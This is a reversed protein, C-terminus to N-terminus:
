NNFVRNLTVGPSAVSMVLRIFKNFEAEPSNAVYIVDHDQIPFNQTVFFAAPNRLNVQYVVPVMGKLSLNARASSYDQMIDTSEFRFIFVGRADSRNDTLGGARALAQALTIGQIEFQIEENKSAAGLIMFSQPLYLATIVDGPALVINQLNDRIVLDLPMRVSVSNRSLQVAMHSIQQKVGGGAALADLLREGKPTLPMLTSNNVDGVITVNSTNNRTVRVLVQPQNAKGYLRNVIENEVEQTTRGKVSVRGAFPMTIMGDPAVMQEPMSIARSTAPGSTPDLVISGFLMAPPTEWVTIEIIDGPNIVYNNRVQNKFIESFLVIKKSNALKKAVDDTVDILQISEFAASDNFENIQQRSPGSSSLWDPYTACGSSFLQLLLVNAAFFINRNVIGSIMVAVECGLDGVIMQIGIAVM